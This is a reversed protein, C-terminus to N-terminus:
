IMMRGNWNKRLLPPLTIPTTWRGNNLIDLANKISALSRSWRIRMMSRGHWKLAHMTPWKRCRETRYRKLLSCRALNGSRRIARQRRRITWLGRTRPHISNLTTRYVVTANQLYTLKKLLTTMRDMIRRRRKVYFLSRARDRNAMKYSRKPRANLISRM